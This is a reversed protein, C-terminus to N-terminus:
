RWQRVIIILADIGGVIVAHAIEVLIRAASVRGDRVGVTIAHRVSPFEGIRGGTVRGIRQVIHNVIRAFVRRWVAQDIFLLIEVAGIGLYSIGITVANRITIFNGVATVRGVRIGIKRRYGATQGVGSRLRTSVVSNCRLNRPGGPQDIVHARGIGAGVGDLINSNQRVVCDLGEEVRIGIRGLIHPFRRAGVLCTTHRNDDVECIVENAGIDRERIVRRVVKVAITQRVEVLYVYM